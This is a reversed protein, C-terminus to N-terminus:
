LTCEDVFFRSVRRKEAKVIARIDSATDAIVDNIVWYDFLNIRGLEERATALRSEIAEESETGRALLRDRLAEETSATIFIIIANPCKRKLELAGNVTLDLLVDINDQIMRDIPASPTGYYEGCYTDYELIDGRRTLEEFRDKTTFHYAIGNHEGKRPQRTTMSVSHFFRPDEERLADIISNKGVGSPGTLVVLLGRQDLSQEYTVM